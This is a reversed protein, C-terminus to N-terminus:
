MTCFDSVVTILGMGFAKERGIGTQLTQRFLVVDSVSLIGEYTVALIRNEKNGKKFIKWESRVVDFQSDLLQFGKKESQNILWKRQQPVITLAKVVGRRDKEVMRAVTPNATLRFRWKSGDTIRALLKDYDKTEWSQAPLGIQEPLTNNEPPLQSLLLLYDKGYLQDIRWLNRKREGSFSGEVMGHMKELNYLASMAEHKKRDIAVRSLYM